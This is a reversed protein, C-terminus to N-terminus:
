QRRTWGPGVAAWASEWKALRHRELALRCLCYSLLLLVGAGATTAIAVVVASTLPGSGGAGNPLRWSARPMAASAPEPRVVPGAQALVEVAPGQRAAVAQQSQYIHAALFAAMVTVTLFAASLAVVVCGEVRDAPRRLENRGLLLRALRSLRGTRRRAQSSM